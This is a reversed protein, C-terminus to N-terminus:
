VARMVCPEAGALNLFILTPPDCHVCVKFLYGSVDLLVAVCIVVAEIDPECFAMFRAKSLISHRLM